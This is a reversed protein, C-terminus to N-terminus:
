HCLASFVMETGILVCVATFAFVFQKWDFELALMGVSYVLFISACVLLVSNITLVLNWFRGM